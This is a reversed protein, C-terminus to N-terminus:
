GSFCMKQSDEILHKEQKAHDEFSLSSLSHNHYGCTLLCVKSDHDSITEARTAGSGLDVSAAYSNSLAHQQLSGSAGVPGQAARCCVVAKRSLRTLVFSSCAKNVQTKDLVAAKCM